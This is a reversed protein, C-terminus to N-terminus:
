DDKFRDDFKEVTMTERMDKMAKVVKKNKDEIASLVELYTMDLDKAVRRAIDDRPIRRKVIKRKDELTVKKIASSPIYEKERDDRKKVLSALKTTFSGDALIPYAKKAAESRMDILTM